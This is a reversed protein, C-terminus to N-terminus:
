ALQVVLSLEERSATGAGALNAVDIDLTSDASEPVWLGGGNNTKFATTV